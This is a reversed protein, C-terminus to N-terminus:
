QEGDEEAPEDEGEVLEDVGVAVRTEDYGHGVGDIPELGDHEITCKRLGGRPHIKAEDADYAVREYGDRPVILEAVQLSGDIIVGGM